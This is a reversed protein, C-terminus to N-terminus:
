LLEVVICNQRRMTNLSVPLLSQGGRTEMPSEEYRNIACILSRIRLALEPTTPSGWLRDFDECAGLYANEDGIVPIQSMVENASNVALKLNFNLKAAAM